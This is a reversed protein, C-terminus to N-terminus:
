TVPSLVQVGAVTQRLRAVPADLPRLGDAYSVSVRRMLDDESIDYRGLRWLPPSCAHLPVTDDTAGTLHHIHDPGFCFSTGAGVEVPLHSGGIRPDSETSAGQVVRVAGSSLDHDHRGTDNRRTWCLLWVDVFEDRHPSAYHREEHSFAIRDRWLEPRSALDDVLRQLERKDLTRDPLSAYTM